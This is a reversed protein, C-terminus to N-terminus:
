LGLVFFVVAISVNIWFIPGRTSPKFTLKYFVVPLIFDLPMFGFAGIVSNIDGFFPVMAAMTTAIIVSLLRAIVRPIVNCSPFEKQSPDVFTRELVENTPQLYVVGIAILQLITFINIMFIFWKPILAKGEDLFNGLVLGDAKNGFAWYSSIAVRFFTLTVVTSCVCQGKFMKGQIELIIDNGYTTPIIAIANFVGFICNEIDGNLSYNKEPGKSSKGIYISGAAACASYALCLIISILNIHRLSHFSPIQALILMFCGFIIVFEYLKM